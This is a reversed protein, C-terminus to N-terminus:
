RKVDDRKWVKSQDKFNRIDSGLCEKYVPRICRIIKIRSMHAKQCRMYISPERDWEQVNDVNM